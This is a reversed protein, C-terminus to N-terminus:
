VRVGISLTKQPQAKILLKHLTDQEEYTLLTLDLDGGEDVKEASVKGYGRDRARANLFYMIASDDGKVANDILKGEIKDKISERVEEIAQAFDQDNMVWTKYKSSPIRTEACAKSLMGNAQLLADIFDGKVDSEDQDYSTILGAELLLEKKQGIDKLEIQRNVIAKAKIWESQTWSVHCVMFVQDSSENLTMALRVWEVETDVLKINDTLHEGFLSYPIKSGSWYYGTNVDYVIESLNVGDYFM